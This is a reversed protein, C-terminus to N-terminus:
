AGLQQLCPTEMHWKTKHRKNIADCSEMLYIHLSCLWKITIQCIIMELMEMYYINHIHIARYM